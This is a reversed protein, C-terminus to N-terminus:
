KLLEDLPLLIGKSTDNDCGRIDRKTKLHKRCISKLKATSILIIKDNSLVFAYFEAESTSIGSQKGRSNYEIFINGTEHAQYDTKVEIKKNNLINALHKEGLQGLKLDYKFDSNFNM